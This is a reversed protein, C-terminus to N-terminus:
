KLEEIKRLMSRMRDKNSYGSELCRRRGAAAIKKREEPHALYHNVKELLEEKSGFYEAEKGEEFLELHEDTREALMFAGCAPIEVSRKTQRDNVWKSLFCLNIDFSCISKAYEAGFVPRGEDRFNPDRIGSHDWSYGYSWIRVPIGNGVLFRIWEGYHPEYHGIFGVPGGYERRDESSVEVPGHLESEYSNGMFVANPCGLEEIKSLAYSKNTFVADYYKTSRSARRTRHLRHVWIDDLSHQVIKCGPRLERVQRLTGPNIIQGRLIWIVDFPREKITAVIRKNIRGLDLPGVIKRMVRMFFNRELRRASEPYMDLVTVDNNLRRLNDVSYSGFGKISSSPGLSGVWLISLRKEKM